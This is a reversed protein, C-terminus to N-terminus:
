REREGPPSPRDWLPTTPDYELVELAEGVVLFSGTVLITEESSRSALASAIAEKVSVAVSGEVGLKAGIESLDEGPLARDSPPTCYHAFRVSDRLAGLFGEHDKGEVMGIVLRVPPIAHKRLSSALWRAGERNHAVDCIVPPDQRIRDFRAPWRLRRLGRQIAAGSPKIAAPLLHLALVSLAANAV